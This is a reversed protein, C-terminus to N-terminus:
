EQYGEAPDEVFDRLANEIVHSFSAADASMANNTHREICADYYFAFLACVIFRTLMLIQSPLLLHCQHKIDLFLIAKSKKM